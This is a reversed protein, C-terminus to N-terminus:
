QVLLCPQGFAAWFIGPFVAWCPRVFIFNKLGQYVFTKRYDLWFRRDANPFRLLGLFGALVARYLALSAIGCTGLFFRRSHSLVATQGLSETGSM